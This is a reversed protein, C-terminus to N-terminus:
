DVTTDAPVAQMPVPCNAGAPEVPVPCHGAASPGAQIAVRPLEVVPPPAVRSAVLWAAAATAFIAAGLVFAAAKRTQLTPRRRAAAAHAELQAEPHISGAGCLQLKTMTPHNM